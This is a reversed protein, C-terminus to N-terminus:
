DEPKDSPVFEYSNAKTVIAQAAGLVGEALEEPELVEVLTGLGLVRMQADSFSQFRVNVIVWGHEDPESVREYQGNMFNPFYWLADQHVRLVTPYPPNALRMEEEFIRCSELWYAKLDFTMDRQFHSPLLKFSQLRSIRYNRHKGDDRKGVLYWINAKAVLAYAELCLTIINGASHEYVIEVCRNEWVAKQLDPLYPSEEPVQMWNATDIYFRSQMQELAQQHTNPLMAQLKKLTNESSLGLERMPQSDIAAFLSQAEIQSLGSLAMRYNEDLFVGGQTGSQTYIPIGSYCLAEIDRYVTRKSVELKEALSEATMRANSQLLLLMSILRDARM